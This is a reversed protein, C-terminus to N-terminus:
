ANGAPTAESLQEANTVHWDVAEQHTVKHKNVYAVINHRTVNLAAAAEALSLRVGHIMVEKSPTSRPRKEGNAPHNVYWDIGVQVPLGRRRAWMAINASSVGLRRAAEELIMQEGHLTVLVTSRRNAAQEGYTAWRCNGPEYNGNNDIRELSMGHPREGMDAIFHLVSERWRECVAIGRGGYNAYNDSQPSHCRRIMEHWANYIRSGSLGHTKSRTSVVDANLCGCSHTRPLNAVLVTKTRGCDCVLFVGQQTITRHAVVTFRGHRDGIKVKAM